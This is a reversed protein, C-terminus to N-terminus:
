FLSLQKGHDYPNYAKSYDDDKFFKVANFDKKRHLSKGIQKDIPANTSIYYYYLDSYPTNVRDIRGSAQKTARYSNSLSFFVMVNTTTCNWAEAGATYQVLYLWHDTEPVLEHKHGNWEAYDIEISEALDRLM